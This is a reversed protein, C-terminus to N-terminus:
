KEEEPTHEDYIHSEMGWSSVDQYGCDKCTHLRPIPPEGLLFRFLWNM